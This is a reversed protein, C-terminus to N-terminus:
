IVKETKGALNRLYELQGAHYSMHFAFFLITAGKTGSWGSEKFYADSQSDLAQVALSSLAAFDQRITGLDPLGAEDELLPDSTREFRKYAHFGEPEPGGLEVVLDKMSEVMHGLVWLMCNGGPQPQLLLDEQSLGETQADVIWQWNEFLIKFDEKTIM